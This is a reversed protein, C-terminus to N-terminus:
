IQIIKTKYIVYYIHTSEHTHTHTHKAQMCTLAGHAQRTGVSALESCSLLCGLMLSSGLGPWSM